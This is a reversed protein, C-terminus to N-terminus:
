KNQEDSFQKGLSPQANASNLLTQNKATIAAIQVPIIFEKDCHLM